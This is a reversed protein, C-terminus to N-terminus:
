LYQQMRAVNPPDNESDGLHLITECASIIGRHFDDVHSGAILENTAIRKMEKLKKSIVRWDDSHKNIM